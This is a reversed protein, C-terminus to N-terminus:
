QTATEGAPRASLTRSNPTKVASKYAIAAQSFSHPTFRTAISDVPTYQIGNVAAAVSLVSKARHVYLV